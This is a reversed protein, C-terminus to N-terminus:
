PAVSSSAATSPPLPRPSVATPEARIASRASAPPRSRASRRRSGADYTEARPSVAVDTPGPLVPPASATLSVTGTNRSWTGRWRRSASSRRPTHSRSCVGTDPSRAAPRALAATSTKHAPRSATLSARVQRRTRRVQRGVSGRAAM